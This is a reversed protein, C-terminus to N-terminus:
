HLREKQLIGLPIVRLMKESVNEQRENRFFWKCRLKRSFDSIYKPLDIENISSPTPSFGLGQELVKIELPSLTKQSLNFVIDFAFNGKIRADVLKNSTSASGCLSELSELLSQDGQTLYLDSESVQSIRSSVQPSVYAPLNSPRRMGSTEKFINAYSVNPFVYM